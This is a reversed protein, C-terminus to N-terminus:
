KWTFLLWDSHPLLVDLFEPEVVGRYGEKYGSCQDDGWVNSVCSIANFGVRWSGGATMPLYCFFEGFPDTVVPNTPAKPDSGQVVSFGIGRMPTGKSDLVRGRILQANQPMVVPANRLDESSELLIAFLWGEVGEETQVLMWEAGPSRGLVTLVSGLPLVRLVPFLYGPNSRLNANEVGTVIDFAAYPTGTPAVTATATSTVTPASPPPTPTAPLPSDTLVIATPTGALPAQCAALCILLLGASKPARRIM